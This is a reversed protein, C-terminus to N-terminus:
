LLKPKATVLLVISSMGRRRRREREGNARREGGGTGRGEEGVWVGYGWGWGVTRASVLVTSFNWLHKLHLLAAFM